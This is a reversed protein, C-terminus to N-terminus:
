TRRIRAGAAPSCRRGPRVPGAGFRGERGPPSPGIHHPGIGCEPWASCPLVATTAAAAVVVLVFPVRRWALLLGVLVPPGPTAPSAAPRPSSRRRHRGLAALLTAAGVPLLHRSWEPLDLRDRLLM